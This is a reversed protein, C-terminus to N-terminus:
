AAGGQEKGKPVFDFRYAEGRIQRTWQVIQHTHGVFHSLTDILAHMGTVDFGQVRRVRLLDQPDLKALVAEVETLREKLKRRVEAVTTKGPDAFEGPRDRVDPAGGLGAIIWQRLNGCLHNVVIAISNMEPRPRWTMDVDSLQDLCHEIKHLARNFTNRAEAVLAPGIELNATDASQGERHM